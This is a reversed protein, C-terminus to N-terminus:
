KIGRLLKDIQANALLIIKRAKLLEDVIPPNNEKDSNDEEKINNTELILIPRLKSEIGESLIANIENAVEVISTVVEMIPEGASYEIKTNM